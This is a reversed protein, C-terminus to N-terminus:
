FSSRSLHNKPVLYKKPISRSTNNPQRCNSISRPCMIRTSYPFQHNITQDRSFSRAAAFCVCVRAERRGTGNRDAETSFGKKTEAEVGIAEQRAEQDSGTDQDTNLDTHDFPPGGLHISGSREALYQEGRTAYRGSTEASPLASSREAFEPSMIIDNVEQDTLNLWDLESWHRTMSHNRHCDPGFGTSQRDVDVRTHNGPRPMSLSSESVLSYTRLSSFLRRDEFLLEPRDTSQTVRVSVFHSERTILCSRRRGV